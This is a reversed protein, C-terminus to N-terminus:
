RRLQWQSGGIVMQTAQRSKRKRVRQRDRRVDAVVISVADVVSLLFLCGILMFTAFLNAESSEARHLLYFPYTLVLANVGTLVTWFERTSKNGKM